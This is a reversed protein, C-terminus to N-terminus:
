MEISQGAVVDFVHNANIDFHYSVTNEWTIRQALKMSQSVKDDDSYQSTNLHYVMEYNRDSSGSLRYGFQSKIRLDM